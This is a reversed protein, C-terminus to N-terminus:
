DELIKGDKLKITRNAQKAIEYDHTALILTQNLDRNLKKLLDIISQSTESDLDGSIEDGLVMSPRNALARAIAVRQREGGSLEDPRHNLREELGIKRLLEQARQRRENTSIGAILMPLEVNELATLVPFLNFSQFVFGIKDRRLIALESDNLKSLDKGEFYVKGDTPKDLAGLINLLTTKGSGSPGMISVFEGHKVTLDIGRLAKVSVAGLRFIKKVSEVCIVVDNVLKLGMKGSGSSRMIFVFERLKV